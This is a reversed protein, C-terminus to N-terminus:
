DHTSTEISELHLKKRIEVILRSFFGRGQIFLKAKVACCLDIDASESKLHEAQLEDLVNQLYSDSLRTCEDYNTSSTKAFFAKGIVYRKSTDNAIRKKLYEVALPRKQKEHYENGAVVDGLRLHIVISESIDSPLRNSHQKIYGLVIETIVDISSRQNNNPDNRNLIFKSGISQPHEQLIEMKEIDSLQLLVLDGLRYSSIVTGTDNYLSDERQGGYTSCHSRNNNNGKCFCSWVLVM